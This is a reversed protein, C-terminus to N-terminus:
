LKQCCSGTKLASMGSLRQINVYIM